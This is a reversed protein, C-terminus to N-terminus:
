PRSKLQDLISLVSTTIEPGIGHGPFLVVKHRDGSNTHSHDKATTPVTNSGSFARVLPARPIKFLRSALM